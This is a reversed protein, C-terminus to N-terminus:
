KFSDYRNCVTNKNINYWQIVERLAEDIPTYDDFGLSKIREVNLIRKPDGSPKTTDWSVEPKNNTYKLLKEVLEKISIGEGTGANVPSTVENEVIFCCIKAVDKAYIFDRVASGDGWASLPSEGEEIRSILSPVVMGTEKDFNDKKGFVNAPRVISVRDWDYQIKYTEAQLEGMRKAWGAYWDNKSPPLNWLEDEPSEFDGYVGVSSTYLFWEVDALRAAEMINTDFQLMPVFFSAPREKAMAPSGKIGVMSFVVDMGQCARKCSNFDRLDLKEYEVDQSLRDKDEISVVKVNAGKSVLQDVVESGIMGTGGTVLVKKGELKM